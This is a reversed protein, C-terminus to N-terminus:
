AGTAETPAPTTPATWSNYRQMAEPCINDLPMVLKGPVFTADVYARLNNTKCNIDQELEKKVTDVKYNMFNFNDSTRQEGVAVKKELDSIQSAFIKYNNNVESTIEKARDVSAKYTEIGINDAYREAKEKGLEAQLASIQRTDNDQNCGCGNHRNGLIGNGGLFGQNLLALTGLGGGVAGWVGLGQSAVNSTGGDATKIQM